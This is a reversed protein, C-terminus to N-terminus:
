RGDSVGYLPVRVGPAPPDAPPGAFCQAIAMWAKAGPGEVVLRTDAINRCQCVVLAFDEAPGTVRNSAAEHGWVWVGGSPADLRVTVPEAPPELGRGQFAWGITRYGLECIPRLRDTPTRRKLLADHITQGHAWTEMLRAAVFARVSMDPGYWPIRVGPALAAVAADLKAVGARWRALLQAPPIDPPGSPGLSNIRAGPRPILRRARFGEPDAVAATASADSFNLHHIHDFVRWDKFATVRRWEDESLGAVAADLEATEAALLDLFTM